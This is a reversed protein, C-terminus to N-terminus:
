HMIEVSGAPLPESDGYRKSTVRSIVLACLALFGGVFGVWASGLHHVVISGLLAGAGIGVNYIASHMASAVDTADPALQIVQSQMLIGFCLMALGWLAFVVVLTYISWSAWLMLTLCICLSGIAMVTLHNAFRTYLTNFFISGMLGALGFLLLMWTTTQESFGAVSQVFTEIYTYATFNATVVLATVCYLSVLAPRKFLIPLSKLSGSNQSPLLPLKKTLLIWILAAVAAITVFTARWGMSEGLVRGIPIGLVMALSAGMALLSLARARNGGPALRVALSATVSWFVAHALAIGIRSIVVMTFNPALSLVIHSVILTGIAVKLLLRREVNRTLLMMPLSMLSVTWAYVTLMPGVQAATMDFSSGIAYLLGVPAFETTIFIFAAVALAGVSIWSAQQADAPTSM